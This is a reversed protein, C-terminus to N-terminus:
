QPLGTARSLEYWKGDVGIFCITAAEGDAVALTTSTVEWETDTFEFTVSVGQNNFLILNLRQGEAVSLANVNKNNSSVAATIKTTEFNEADLDSGSVSTDDSNIEHYTGFRSAFRATGTEFSGDSIEVGSGLVSGSEVVSGGSPVIGLRVLFAQVSSDGPNFVETGIANIYTAENNQYLLCSLGGSTVAAPDFTCSKVTLGYCDIVGDLVSGSATITFLCNEFLAEDGSGNKVMTHSTGHSFDCRTARLPHAGAICYSASELNSGDLDCGILWLNLFPAASGILHGSTSQAAKLTLNQMIRPSGESSTADPSLVNETGGSDDLSITSLRTAGLLSVADKAQLASTIRFTKPPFFVIGGGASQAADIAAQIASTDDTTNDGAAGYRPDMVNYVVGSFEAAISKITRAEGNVLVKWDISGNNDKWLNLLAELTLPKSVGSLTVGSGDDYETGTFSQSIVEVNSANDGDVASVLLNGDSDYVEVDVLQNVYAVKRGWADLQLDAGTANQSQAEFDDWWTARTSTGRVYLRATGNDAGRVGTALTNVLHM